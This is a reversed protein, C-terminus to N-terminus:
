KRDHRDRDAATVEREREPQVDISALVADLMAPGYVFAASKVVHDARIHGSVPSALTRIGTVGSYRELM